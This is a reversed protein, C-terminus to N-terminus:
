FLNFFIICVICVKIEETKCTSCKMLVFTKTTGPRFNLSAAYRLAELINVPGDGFQLSEIASELSRLPGSIQGDLTHVHPASHIESGGFGVVSFRVDRHGTQKYNDEITQALKGLFKVREKNCEKEEVLFVVDAASIANARTFKLAEGEKM